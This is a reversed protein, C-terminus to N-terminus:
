PSSPTGVPSMTRSTVSRGGRTRRHHWMCGTRCGVEPSSHTALRRTSATAVWDSPTTWRSGRPGSCPSPTAWVPRLRWTAPPLVAREGGALQVVLSRATATLSEGTLETAADGQPGRVDGERTPSTDFPGVAGVVTGFTGNRIRIMPADDGQVGVGAVPVRQNREFLVRDGVYFAKDGFRVEEGLEGGALRRARVMDNLAGVDSRRVALIATTCRRHVDWWDEVIRQRAEDITDTVTVRGHDAYAGVAPTVDGERLAVLADREWQQDAGTQRRNTTLIVVHDGLEAALTRIAGGADISSLQRNDGVLVLKAGAGDVFSRLQDLPRTGVMSAEDVLIVDRATLGGGERIDALLQALSSSPIGTGAQLDAATRAAVATGIVRFGAWEWGLRAAGLLTSKGTGAQGVVLDYGNGSTLLARVGAAQETDLHGHLELVQDVISSDVRATGASIRAVASGTIRQEAALLEATSYRRDGSTEPVQQGSRTRVRDVAVGPEALLRVVGPRTLLEDALAVAETPTVDFARAVASIADRRTFTSSLLTVPMSRTGIAGNDIARSEDIEWDDLSVGNEGLLARFIEEVAEAGPPASPEQGIAASLDELTAPRRGGTGDPLQIAELRERWRERLFDGLPAARHHRPRTALAVTRATRHSDSGRAEMAAEIDARRTSFAQLIAKPIGALEGLGSRRVNWVLGLPALEARLAAQYLTGATKAWVFLHRGDPASWIGDSGQVLNPVVVHTHLQPDGARSTRHRFAAGLFGQAEVLRHGGDGRRGFCAERSLQGLVAVVAGDHAASVAARVDDSGMAWLLSVGKPASFTLDYGPRRDARLRVCLPQGDHARGALLNRLADPAVEGTLGLNRAASGMWQGPAEGRGLYYDDVSNAVKDLYYEAGGSVALRGISLM